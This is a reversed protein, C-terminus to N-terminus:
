IQIITIKLRDRIELADSHSNGGIRYSNELGRVDCISLNLDSDAWQCKDCRLCNHLCCIALLVSDIHEHFMYNRYKVNCEGHVM